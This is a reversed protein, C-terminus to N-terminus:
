NMLLRQVWGRVRATCRNWFGVVDYFFVFLTLAMLPVTAAFWSWMPVGDLGQVNMGFFSTTFSLPVFILALFTLKEVRAAQHLVKKSEMISMGNMLNTIIEQCRTNLAQAHGELHAFDREVLSRTRRSVEGAAKPWKPPKASQIANRAARIKRTHQLLVQKMYRLNPLPDSDKEDLQANYQDLKHEALDLLQKQSAAALTFVENLAYFPDQAMSETRLSRGYGTHLQSASPPAENNNEPENRSMSHALLGDNPRYRFIPHFFKKKPKFSDRVSSWPGTLLTEFLDATADAWIFVVWGKRGEAPRMCITIRQEVAYHFEDFLQIGRILSTGVAPVHVGLKTHYSRLGAAWERRADDLHDQTPLSIMSDLSGLTTIPLEILNWSLSPLSSQSFSHVSSDMSRFDFWRSFMEPDALHTGGITGVWNPSPYGRLFLLLGPSDAESPIEQQLYSEEDDFFKPDSLGWAPTAISPVAARSSPQSRQLNNEPSATVSQFRYRVLFATGRPQFDPYQATNFNLLPSLFHALREHRQGVGTPLGCFDRVIKAYSQSAAACTRRSRAGSNDSRSRRVGGQAPAPLSTDM